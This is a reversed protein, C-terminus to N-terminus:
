RRAHSTESKLSLEKLIHSTIYFAFTATMHTASGIGSACDLRLSKKEDTQPIEHIECVGGTIPNPYLAFETSYVCAVGFTHRGRPFHHHKILDKRLVLLLKDNRTKALDNIVILSPDQKGGAGGCTIVPIERKKCEAILVAKNLSKDITDVVYSFKNNLIEKATKETLFDFITHVICHENITLIREKLALTKEKGINGQHAHIQRNTNSVCVEDMDVLTIEEIGSRAISEVVWSGVGGLGVICIHSARFKELSKEGYLRAIGSFKYNYSDM